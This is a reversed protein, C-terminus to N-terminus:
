CRCDLELAMNPQIKRAGEWRGPSESRLYLLKSEEEESKESTNTM